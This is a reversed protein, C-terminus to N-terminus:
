EIAKGIQENNVIGVSCRLVALADNATIYGDGDIDALATQEPTLEGMGVSARLIMLADNATIEGDNDIDGALKKENDSSPDTKTNSDSDSSDSPTDKTESTNDSDSPVSDTDSTNDQKDSDSSPKVESDSSTTQNDSDSSTDSSLGNDRDSNDSDIPDDPSEKDTDSMDHSDSDTELAPAPHIRVPIEASLETGDVTVYLATDAALRGTINVKAVGDKDTKVSTNDVTLFRESGARVIINVDSKAPLIRIEVETSSGSEVNVNVPVDLTEIRDTVEASTVFAEDIYLGNYNRVKNIEFSVVGSMSEDPIFRFKSAYEVSENNFSRESNLPVIKGTIEKGDASLKLNETTVSSIDMYQSFTIDACDSYAAVRSVTPAYLSKMSVNVDTQVPLVPLWETTVTEYGEKEFRVQWWGEPVYWEYHGLADTLLPNQQNYDSANWLVANTGAPNDSYFVTATVNELRNSEVAECVFGSPDIGGETLLYETPYDRCKCQNMIKERAKNISAKAADKNYNYPALVKQWQSYSDSDGHIKKLGLAVDSWNTVASKTAAILPNKIMADSAKDAAFISAAAGLHKLSDYVDSVASPDVCICIDGMTIQAEAGLLAMSEMELLNTAADYLGLGKGIRGFFQAKCNNKHEKMAKNIYNEWKRVEDASQELHANWASSYAKGTEEALKAGKEAYAEEFLGSVNSALGCIKGLTGDRWGSIRQLPEVIGKVFNHGVPVSSNLPCGCSARKPGEEGPDDDNNNDTSTGGNDKDTSHGGNNNDTSTGGNDNDTSHGGNGGNNNDTSDNDKDSDDGVNFPLYTVYYYRETFNVFHYLNPYEYKELLIEDGYTPIIHFGARLLDNISVEGLGEIYVKEDYSVSSGKSIASTSSHISSSSVSSGSEVENLLATLEERMAAVEPNYRCYEESADEDQGFSARNAFEGRTLAKLDLSNILEDSAGDRKLYKRLTEVPFPETELAYIEDMLAYAENMAKDFQRIYQLAGKVESDMHQMDFKIEQYVSYSVSVAAPRTSLTYDYYGTFTNSKEDLSLPITINDGKETKTIVSVHHVKAADGQINLEFTFRSKGPIFPYTLKKFQKGTLMIELSGDGLTDHYYMTLKDAVINDVAYSITKVDSKFVDKNQNTVELYVDHDSRSSVDKLDFGVAFTGSSNSDTNAVVVDNDYVVVHSNPFTTGTTYVEPTNVRRPLYYDLNSVTYSVTGITETQMVNNLAFSVSASVKGQGSGSALLALVIKGSGGKLDTFVSNGEKRFEVTNGNLTMCNDKVTLGEPVTFEVEPSSVAQSRYEYNFQIVIYEGLAATTKNSGIYNNEPAFYSLKFLNAQPIIVDSLRTTKSNEITVSRLLYDKNSELGLENFMTLTAPSYCRYDKRMLVVTYRGATLGDLFGKKKHLSVTDVYKGNNDFVIAMNAEEPVNTQVILLNGLQEFSLVAKTESGLVFSAEAPLFGEREAKITIEDGKQTERLPIEISSGDLYWSDVNKNKTKNYVTLTLDDFSYKDEWNNEIRKERLSVAVSATIIKEIAVEIPEETVSNFESTYSYFGKKAVTLASPTDKAYLTFEGNEDTEATLTKLIKDSAKQVFTISAGIVAEGESDTVKGKVTRVVYKELTCVHNPSEPDVMIEQRSPVKYTNVLWDSAFEVTYRFYDGQAAKGLSSGTKVYEGTEKYWRIICKDTVDAGAADFITTRVPVVDRINNFSAVAEGNEFTVNEVTSLVSGGDSVLDATYKKAPNLGFVKVSDKDIIRSVDVSRDDSYIHLRFGKCKNNSVVTLMSNFEGEVSIDYPINNEIAYQHAFSGATCCIVLNARGAFAYEGISLVSEPIRIYKLDPCVAFSHVGLKEVGSPIVLTTLGSGYFASDSIIKLTSPLTVNKLQKTSQFSSSYIATIGEHINVSVLSECGSFTCHNITSISGLSEVKVLNKCNVFTFNGLEEVSDPLSITKLSSCECFANSEIKKVYKPIIISGLSTCGDFASSGIFTTFEPIVLKNLATCGKFASSNIRTVTDPLEVTELSSCSNFLNDPVEPLTKPLTVDTLKSCEMLAGSGLSTVTDPIVIATFARCRAFASSGIETVSEPIKVNGLLSCGYFSERGIYTIKDPIKMNTLSTCEKFAYDGIATYHEPIPVNTLSSCGSFMGNGVASLSNPLVAKSLNKCSSFVDNGVSTVSNPITIETIGSCGYFAYSGLTKVSSPITISTLGSCKSFASDGITTVSNPITLKVVGTCSSFASSGVSTINDPIEIDTLRTCNSFMGSAITSIGAPIEVSPLNTCSAFVQSGFQTINDTFTIKTLGTCNSFARIGVSVVSEPFTVEGLATCYTFADTEIKTVSSPIDIQTLSTCRTFLNSEIVTLKNSLKVSKLGTCSHFLGYGTETVSDPITISLLGTCNNFAYTGIYSVTEPIKITKLSTCNNFTSENIRIISDPLSVNKLNKCGSFANSGLTNVSDPLTISELSTCSEFAENSITIVSDPINIDTLSKCGEFASSGISKVSNPIVIKKLNDCYGFSSSGISIVSDPITVEEIGDMYFFAYMGISTVGEEIVLKETYKKIDNWPQTNSSSSDGMTGEGSITLTRTKATFSWNVHGTTGSADQPEEEEDGAGSPQVSKSLAAGYVAHNYTPIYPTDKLIISELGIEDTTATEISVQPEAEIDASSTVSEATATLISNSMITLTVFLATLRIITKNM